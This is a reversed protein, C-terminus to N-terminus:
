RVALAPREERRASDVLQRMKEGRLRHSAARGFFRALLRLRPSNQLCIVLDPRERRLARLGDWLGHRDRSISVNVDSLGSGPLLAGGLPGALVVIKADPWRTRLALLAPFSCLVDGMHRYNIVGITRPNLNSVAM